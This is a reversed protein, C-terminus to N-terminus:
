VPGPKFVIRRGKAFGAEFCIERVCRLSFAHVNTRDCYEYRDMRMRLLIFGM